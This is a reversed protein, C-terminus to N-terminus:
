KENFDRALKPADIEKPDEGKDKDELMKFYLEQMKVIDSFDTTPDEPTGFIQKLMAESTDEHEALQIDFLRKNVRQRTTMPQKPAPPTGFLRKNVRDSTSSNGSNYQAM